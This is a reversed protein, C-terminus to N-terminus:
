YCCRKLFFFLILYGNAVSSILRSTLVLLTVNQLIGCYVCYALNWNIKRFCVSPTLLWCVKCLWHVTCFTKAEQFLQRRYIYTQPQFKQERQRILSVYKTLYVITYKSHYSQRFANQIWLSRLSSCYCCQIRVRLKQITVM